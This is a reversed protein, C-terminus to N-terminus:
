KWLNINWGRSPWRVGFLWAPLRLKIIIFWFSQTAQTHPEKFHWALCLVVTVIMSIWSARLFIHGLRGTLQHCIYFKCLEALCPTPRLPLSPLSDYQLPYPTSLSLPTTHHPHLAPRPSSPTLSPSPSLLLSTYFSHPPPPLLSTCPPHHLASHTPHTISRERSYLLRFLAM